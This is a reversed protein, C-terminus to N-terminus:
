ISADDREKPLNEKNQKQTFFNTKTVKNSYRPYHSTFGTNYRSLAKFLNGDTKDYYYKLVKLGLEINYEKDFIRTFDIDLVDKWVKYNIQMLGYAGANSVATPNFSSEVQIIALILFPNFGFERSKEYVIKVTESFNPFRLQYAKKEFLGFAKEQNIMNEHLTKYYTLNSELKSVQKNLKEITEHKASSKTALSIVLTMLAIMVVCFGILMTKTKKNISKKNIQM